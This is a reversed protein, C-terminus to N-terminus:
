FGTYQADLISFYALFHQDGLQPLGISTLQKLFNSILDINLLQRLNSFKGIRHM